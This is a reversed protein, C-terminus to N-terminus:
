VFRQELEASSLHAALLVVSVSLLTIRGMKLRLIVAMQRFKSSKIHNTKNYWLYQCWNLSESDIM